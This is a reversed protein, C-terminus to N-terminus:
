AGRSRVRPDLRAYVLDAAFNALLVCLTIILLLAQILPYDETGVANALTFGVGPYNFIFEVLIQGGVLYGLTLAFSTVQPLLANRAAYGFMIKRDRLGRARAMVVYDESLTNIMVNRM